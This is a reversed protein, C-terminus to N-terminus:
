KHSYYIIHSHVNCVGVSFYVMETYCNLILVSSWLLINTCSKEGDRYVLVSMVYLCECLCTMNCAVYSIKECM